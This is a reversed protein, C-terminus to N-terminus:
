IEGQFPQDIVKHTLEIVQKLDEALSLATM